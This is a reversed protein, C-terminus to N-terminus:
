KFKGPIFTINMLVKDFSYNVNLSKEDVSVINMRDEDDTGKDFIIINDNVLEWTGNEAWTDEKIPMDDEIYVYRGNKQFEIYMFFDNGKKGEETYSSSLWSRCLMEKVPVKMKMLTDTNGDQAFILSFPFFFIVFSFVIYKNM